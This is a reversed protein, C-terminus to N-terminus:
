RGPESASFIPGHPCATKSVNPARSDVSTTSSIRSRPHELHKWEGVDPAARQVIREDDNILCLRQLAVNQERHQRSHSLVGADHEGVIHSLPVVKADTPVVPHCGDDLREFPVRQERVHGQSAAFRLGM